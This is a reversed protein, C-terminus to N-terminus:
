SAPTGLDAWDLDTTTEYTGNGDADVQITLQPSPDYENGHVTVKVKTGGAGTVVVVGTYPRYSSYMETEFPTQTDVTVAGGLETSALTFDAWSTIISSADISEYITFNSMVTTTLGDSYGLSGGSLQVTDSTANWSATVTYDGAMRSTTGDLTVSLDIWVTGAASGGTQDAYGSFNWMTLWGNIVEGPIDSCQDFTMRVSTPAASITITGSELCDIAETVGTVTPTASAAALRRVTRSTIRGVVHTAPSAEGEVAVAMPVQGLAPTSVEGMVAAIAATTVSESNAFSMTVPASPASMRPPDGPGDSKTEAGCAVLAISVFLTFARRVTGRHPAPNTNAM